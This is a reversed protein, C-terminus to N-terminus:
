WYARPALSKSVTYPGNTGSLAESLGARELGALFIGFVGEFSGGAANSSELMTVLDAPFLVGNIAHAYGNSALIDAGVVQRTNGEGDILDGDKVELNM